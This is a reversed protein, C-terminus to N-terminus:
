FLRLNFLSFKSKKRKSDISGPLLKAAGHLELEYHKGSDEFDESITNKPPKVEKVLLKALSELDDFKELTTYSLCLEENEDLEKQWNKTDPIEELINKLSKVYGIFLLKRISVQNEDADFSCSYILVIAEYTFLAPWHKMRRYGKFYLDIKAMQFQQIQFITRKLFGFM